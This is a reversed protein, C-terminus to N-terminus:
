CTTENAKFEEISQRATETCVTVSYDETIIKKEVKGSIKSKDGLGSVSVGEYRSLSKDKSIVRHIRRAHTLVCGTHDAAELYGANVGENRSRIIVYKGIASDFISSKGFVDDLGSGKGFQEGSNNFLAAIKKLEGYTLDDINM